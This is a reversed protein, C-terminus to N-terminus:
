YYWMNESAYYKPAIKLLLFTIFILLLFCYFHNIKNLIKFPFTFIAILM